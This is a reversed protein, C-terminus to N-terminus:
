RARAVNEHGVGVPRAAYPNSVPRDAFAASAPLGRRNDFSPTNPITTLVMGRIVAGGVLLGAALALPALDAPWGLVRVVLLLVMVGLVSDAIRVAVVARQRGRAAALSAFPQVTAAAAAYVSWAIVALPAIAFTDGSVVRGLSPVLAAAAVGLALAGLALGLSSRRARRRLVAMPVHRDRAYSALLYSGLGQVILTAPAVFIRAAELAGLTAAGAAGIIVIRFVTIAAPTVSVQIGRWVGFSAVQRLGAHRLSVVRREARPLLAVAALCGVLQGAAIAALFAGITLTQAGNLAILLGVTAALAATDVVVLRWFHMNAMLVRRLLEEALFLAAAAGFWLAAGRDLIGAVHLAVGSVAPGAVLLILAWAQLGARISPDARDLVTLSDGVLGSAVAATLVIAGLCLAMTGLGSAGLLHAALVQLTFSGAAQWVQAVVAGLGGSRAIRTLNSRLSALPM